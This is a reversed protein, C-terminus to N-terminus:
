QSAEDWGAIDLIARGEVMGLLVSGIDRVARRMLPAGVDDEVALRWECGWGCVSLSSAAKGLRREFIRTDVDDVSNLSGSCPRKEGLDPWLM